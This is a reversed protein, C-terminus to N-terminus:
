YRDSVPLNFEIRTGQGPQSAVRPLTGHAELLRLVLALGLGTGSYRRTTAGDLQHFPEFIEAVREAPIGIGTDEVRVIVNAGDHAASLTVQGGPETFKIGNDVLQMVVWTIKEEDAEVVPIGEPVIVRLKISKEAAKKASKAVTISFLESIDLASIRLTFEGQSAMSFRLLDDVLQQLRDTSRKMVELASVQDSIVPGLSGDALLEVYGKIHTLPTRLEHSINSIFNSKIQNLDALRTLAHELESTRERVRQELQRNAQQLAAQLQLIQETIAQDLKEESILNLARLAQGVLLSRNKAAQERQYRLAQDLQEHSLLGEAILYEGLRPVLLEPAVPMGGPINATALANEALYAALALDVGCNDCSQSQGNVPHSCYPCTTRGALKKEQQDMETLVRYEV